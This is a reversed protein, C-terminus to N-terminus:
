YVRFEMLKLSSHNLSFFKFKMNIHIKFTIKDHQTYSDDSSIDPWAESKSAFSSASLSFVLMGLVLSLDLMRAAIRLAIDSPPVSSSESLV